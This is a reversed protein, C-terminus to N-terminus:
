KAKPTSKTSFIYALDALIKQPIVLAFGCHAPGSGRLEASVVPVLGKRQGRNEGAAAPGTEAGAGEVSRRWRNRSHSSGSKTCTSTAPGGKSGERKVDLVQYKRGHAPDVLSLSLSFFFYRWILSVRDVSGCCFWLVLAFCCAACTCAGCSVSLWSLKKRKGKPLPVCVRAPHAQRSVAKGRVDMMRQTGLQCNLCRSAESFM